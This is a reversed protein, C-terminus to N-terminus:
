DIQHPGNARVQNTGSDKRQSDADNNLDRSAADALPVAYGKRSTDTLIQNLDEINFLKRNGVKFSNFGLRVAHDKLTQRPINNNRAFESLTILDSEKQKRVMEFKMNGLLLKFECDEYAKLLREPEDELLFFAVARYQKPLLRHTGPQLDDLLPEAIAAAEKRRKELMSHRAITRQFKKMGHM